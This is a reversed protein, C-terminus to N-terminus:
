AAEEFRKEVKIFDCNKEVAITEIEELLSTGYGSGRFQFARIICRKSELM